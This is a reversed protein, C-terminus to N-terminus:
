RLTPTRYPECLSEVAATVAPSAVGATRNDFYEGVLLLVAQDLEPPITSYGAAYEVTVASNAEIAPWDTSLPPYLKDAVLRGTTITQEDGNEDTYTVEASAINPGWFLPFAYPDGPFGSFTQVVASSATLKKRTYAEVWAQAAALYQAILADESSSTVRCQAKALALDVTM